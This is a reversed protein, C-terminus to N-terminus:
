KRIILALDAVNFSRREVCIYDGTKQFFTYSDNNLLYKSPDLKLKKTHELSIEDAIAGAVLTNDFGDSAFSSVLINSIDLKKNQSADIVSLCMEQNRGGQGKGKIKVTTEGAAVIAEGSKIKEVFPLIAERAEGKLALSGISARYGLKRAQNVM